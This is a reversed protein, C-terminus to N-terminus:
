ANKTLLGCVYEYIRESLADSEKYLFVAENDLAEARARDAMEKTNILVNLYASGAAAQLLKAAIGADSVALRTGIESLRELHRLTKLCLSLTQMPVACAGNLREEMVRGRAAREAETAKPLRYAESLPLFAAEDADALASFSNRAEELAKLLAQLEDEYQAYKQKGVTLNTVMCGLAAGLAGSLALAGGGSPIPSKASLTELFVSITKEETRM